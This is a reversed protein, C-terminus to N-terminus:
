GMRESTRAKRIADRVNRAAEGVLGLHAAIAAALAEITADSLDLEGVMGTTAAKEIVQWQPETFVYEPRGTGNVVPTYGPTLVGGSDFTVHPTNSGAAGLVVPAYGTSTANVSIGPIAAGTVSRVLMPWAQKAAAAAVNVVSSSSSTYVSHGGGLMRATDGATYVRGPTDFDVLEPGEEGVIAWGGAHRGGRAYTPITPLAPLPDAGVWDAVKNVVSRFGNNYVTEIIFNIPAAALGKIKDWTDGIADKATEFANPLTDQVFSKMADFAPKLKTEWVDTIGGVLLDWGAKMADWAPKAANEWLWTIVSGAADFVPKLVNDWYWTVGTVLLSWGAQMLEWTPAAVTEWLWLIVAGFIGLMPGLFNDYYFQFGTVLFEWGLRIADFTPKLANEWVWMGATVLADWVPKLVNEWAWQVAGVLWNWGDAIATTFTEWLRQGTETQTFFYVLGAVLAAIATVILMIPNANMVLTFATQIAAAAKTAASYVLVAATATGLAAALPGLWESNSQVWTSTDKLATVVNGGLETAFAQAEPLVAQVWELLDAAPELFPEIGDTLVTMFGRKLSELSTSTNGYLTDGLEGASGAVNGLAGDMTGLQGLFTPIDSTGLDELPTGFLAIAANAQDAPDPIDQLGAVLDALAGRATDGGALFRASMDEASLGAAEYAEVSATSMDTSRITLEKLADGMKDVGYQGNETASVLLGMAEEGTLGLQALSDSYEQTADVVEGRMAQPVQQLSATMLDFAETADAALGTKILIGANRASETVDIGFADSLAIAKGTTDEIADASADRMGDISSVVSDIANGVDAMSEGYADAYLSGAAEGYVASQAPTADLVADLRDTVSEIGLAASFSATLLAVAGAAAALKAVMSGLATSNSDTQEETDRQAGRLKDWWGPAKKVEETSEKQAKELQNTTEKLAKQGERLANEAHEFRKTADQAKGQAAEFKLTAARAQNSEAGHRELADTLRQEATLLDAASRQQAQRAKSVDGSLREVLGTAQKQATELEKVVADAAGDSGDKFSKAYQKGSKDGATKAASTSEKVLKTNFNRMSPLVDVWVEDSM